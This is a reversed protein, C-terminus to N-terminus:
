RNAAPRTLQIALRTHPFGIGATVADLKLTRFEVRCHGKGRTVDLAPFRAWPLARLHRHLGPQNRKVTLVYRVGRSRLYDATATSPTCPATAEVSGRSRAPQASADDDQGLAWASTQNRRNGSGM